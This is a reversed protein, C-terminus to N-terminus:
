DARHQGDSQRQQGTDIGPQDAPHDEQQCETKEPLRQERLQIHSGQAQGARGGLAVRRQAGPARDTEDDSRHPKTSQDVADAQDGHGPQHGHCKERQRHHQPADRLRTHRALSARTGHRDAVPEALRGHQGEEGAREQDIEGM